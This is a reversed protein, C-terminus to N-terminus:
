IGANEDLLSISESRVARYALDLKRNTVSLAEIVQRKAEMGVKREHASQMQHHVGLAVIVSAALSASLWWGSTRAPRWRVGRNGAAAHREATLRALLQETCQDSPAVPRLAARLQSELDKSM